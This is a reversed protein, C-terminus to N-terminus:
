RVRTAIGLKNQFHDSDIPQVLTGEPLLGNPPWSEQWLQNGFRVDWRGQFDQRYPTGRQIMISTYTGDGNLVTESVYPGFEQHWKGILFSRLDPQQAPARVTTLGVAVLSATLMLVARIRPKM